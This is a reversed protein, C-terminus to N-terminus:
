PLEAIHELYAAKKRRGASAPIMRTPITPVTHLIAMSALGHSIRTGNAHAVVSKM